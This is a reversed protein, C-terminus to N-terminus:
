KSGSKQDAKYLARYLKGMGWAWGWYIVPQRVSESLRFMHHSARSILQRCDYIRRRVFSLHDKRAAVRKPPHWHRRMKWLRYALGQRRQRLGASQTRAAFDGDVATFKLEGDAIGRQVLREVLASRVVVVNTGRGDSTYPEVWADGSSVDATEALVDDCYDCASYQFFGMGWDGDLMRSWDRVAHAGDKLQLDVTYRSARHEPQKLRFNVATVDDPAVRAQRAFSRVMAASKLHGCVLGITLVVRERVVPDQRMLLRMAKVFCPIGVFAYRGPVARLQALAASFEIPYYRSKSRRRVDEYARSVEYRFLVPEDGTPHHAGVHIVADIEGQALATSLLWSAFGGSSGQMRFDDAEVHGVYVQRWRGIAEHHHPADPFAEAAIQDESPAEEGFPCLSPFNAPEPRKGGDVAQPTYTGWRTLQM